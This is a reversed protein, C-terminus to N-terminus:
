GHARYIGQIEQLAEETGEDHGAYVDMVKKESVPVFKLKRFQGKLVEFFDAVAVGLDTDLLFTGHGDEGTSLGVVHAPIDEAYSVGQSAVKLDEFEAEGDTTRIYPLNRLLTIVENSKGLGQLATSTITSWGGEPPQVIESPDLYLKTLFNYYDRIAEICKALSYSVDDLTPM